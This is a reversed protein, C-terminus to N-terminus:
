RKLAVLEQLIEDSTTVVRANAQFARQTTILNAFETTLDVNSQELSGAQIEGLGSTKPAAPTPSSAGGLPGATTIGSYLNDGRKLLAGPDTFSQLLVQGRVFVTGDDLTVNLKGNADVSFDKFTATAAATAPKGTADLQLDGVTSLGSDSYGQVRYGANTVLYGSGDLKFDGARTAFEEGSAPDKVIFFGNGSIGLDTQVGTTTLSGQTFTNTIAATSVGAGIQMSAVAGGNSSASAQELTQSFTDEFDTRASKFACTNSNAINNGIVDLENQFQQMGSIASSLSRLM